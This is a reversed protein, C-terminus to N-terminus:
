PNNKQDALEDKYDQVLNELKVRTIGVFPEKASIADGLSFREYRTLIENGLTFLAANRRHQDDVERQLLIGKASFKAREAETKRAVDTLQQYAAEWKALADKLKMVEDAQTALTKENKGKTTTLAAVQESLAKSVQDSEAKATQLTEKETQCSRLQLMTSRLTDRMRNDAPDAGFVPSVWSCAVVTVLSLVGFRSM